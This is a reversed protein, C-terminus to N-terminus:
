VQTLRSLFSRIPFGFTRDSRHRNLQQDFQDLRALQSLRAQDDALSVVRGVHNSVVQQLAQPELQERPLVVRKLGLSQSAPSRPQQSAGPPAATAPGPNVAPPPLTTGPPIALPVPPGAGYAPYYTALPLYIAGTSFDVVFAVIGPIFFLLLGLGDLAAIKWDIENSHPQGVREPHIFAGCGTLGSVSVGALVPILTGSLFQRRQM